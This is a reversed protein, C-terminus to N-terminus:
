FRESQLVQQFVFHHIVKQYARIRGQVLTLSRLKKTPKSNFPWQLGIVLALCRQCRVAERNDASKQAREQTLCCTLRTIRGLQSKAGLSDADSRRGALSVVKVHDWIWSIGCLGGLCRVLRGPSLCSIQNQDEFLPM